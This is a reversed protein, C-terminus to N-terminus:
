ILHLILCIHFLHSCSSFVCVFFYALGREEEEGCYSANGGESVLKRLEGSSIVSDIESSSDDDDDDSGNNSGEGGRGGEDESVRNPDYDEDDESDEDDEAIGQKRTEEEGEDRNLEPLLDFEDYESDCANNLLDLIIDLTECRWCFWDDEEEFGTRM